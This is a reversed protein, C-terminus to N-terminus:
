AMRGGGNIDFTAGTIYAADPSAIFQAKTLQADFM